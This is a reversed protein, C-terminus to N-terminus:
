RINNKNRDITRGREKGHRKKRIYGYTELVASVGPNDVMEKAVVSFAGFGGTEDWNKEIRRRMHESLELYFWLLEYVGINQLELERM